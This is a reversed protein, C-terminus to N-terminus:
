ETRVAPLNHPIDGNDSAAEESDEGYWRAHGITPKTATGWRTRRRRQSGRRVTTEWRWGRSPREANGGRGISARMGSAALPMVLRGLNARVAKEPEGCLVVLSVGVAGEAGDLGGGMGMVYLECRSQVSEGVVRLAAGGRRSGVVQATYQLWMEIGSVHEGQADLYSESAREHVRATSCRVQVDSSVLFKPLLSM